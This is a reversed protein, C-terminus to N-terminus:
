VAGSDVSECPFGMRELMERLVPRANLNDDVVLLRRGAAAPRQSLLPAARHSRGFRATFWFTSGEGLRSDVGTEGGMMEALRRAIALGLGTGGFRRSTSNDAQQFSQFLSHRQEESLGIGTDRVAFRLVTQHQTQEQLSVLVTIEGKQTFKVANQGYNVLVQGTRLPDGVVMDPVEPSVEFIMELGKAAAKDAVLNSFNDLVSAISFDVRELVLKDAEIKSFDLIDNLIGLLHHASQQIKGLYDRQRPDQAGRLALHQSFHELAHAEM